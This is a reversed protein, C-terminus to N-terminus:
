IEKIKKYLCEFKDDIKKDIHWHGFYWKKIDIIQNIKELQKQSNSIEGDNVGSYLKVVPIISAPADHSLMIDVKNDYEEAITMFKNIDNNTIEEERWWSVGETRHWLDVSNAGGCVGIRKDNINYIEGRLLHIVGHPLLGVYGNNWFITKELRAIEVFNEHNGDLFATTFNKEGLVKLCYETKESDGWIVGFDGLIIVIDNKTMESDDIKLIRSIDAHTDGTIIIKNKMM